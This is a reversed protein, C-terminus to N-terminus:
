DRFGRLKQVHMLMGDDSPNLAAKGKDFRFSREQNVSAFQAVKQRRLLRALLWAARAFDIADAAPRWLPWGAVHHIVNGLGPEQGTDARSAFQQNM